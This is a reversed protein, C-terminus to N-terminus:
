ERRGTGRPDGVRWIRLRDSPTAQLDLVVEKAHRIRAIRMENEFAQRRRFHSDSRQLLVLYYAGRSELLHELHLPHVQELDLVRRQGGVYDIFKGTARVNSVLVSGAPTEAYIADRIATQDAAWTAHLWQAALLGIALMGLSARLVVSGARELAVLRQRSMRGALRTGWRPWVEAATFALIPLLPIFYRPGLVLQKAAGSQEGAYGYCLHFVVFVAVTAILEPRRPGRYALATVLGGPVFLLLSTAYLPLNHPIAALSFAGPPKTYFPDGFFLTASVLRLCLGLSGGAVLWPWGTDRRLISGLFLPAFLLANAERFAFAAGAVLGATFFAARRGSLGRWYLGAGVATLALSPAESMAVRGMIMTAPYLLLLAAWLPSHGALYLWRATAAVGLWICLLSLLPAADRGGVAVFPVLALGTGLPYQNRSRFEVPEGTVPDETTITPGGGLILEAQRVYNNEDVVSVGPPYFLLFGVTYTALLFLLATTASRPEFLASLGAGAITPAGSEELARGSQRQADLDASHRFAVALALRIAQARM